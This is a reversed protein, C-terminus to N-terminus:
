EEKNRKFIYIQKNKMQVKRDLKLDPDSLFTQALSQGFLVGELAPICLYDANQDIFASKLSSSSPKHYGDLTFTRDSMRSKLENRRIVLPSLKYNNYIASMFYDGRFFYILLSNQFDSFVVKDSPTFLSAIKGTERNKGYKISNAIQGEFLGLYSSFASLLAMALLPPCIIPNRNIKKVPLILAPLLTVLFITSEGIIQLGLKTRSALGICTSILSLLLFPIRWKWSTTRLWLLGMCLGLIIQPYIIVFHRPNCANLWFILVGILGSIVLFAKGPKLFCFASRKASTNRWALCLLSFVSASLFLSEGGSISFINLFKLIYAYGITYITATKIFNGSTRPNNVCYGSQINYKDSTVVSDTAALPRLRATPNTETLMMFEIQESNLPFLSTTVMMVSYLASPWFVITMRRLYRAISLFREKPRIPAFTERLVPILSWLAFFFAYIIFIYEKTLVLALFLLSIRWIRERRSLELMILLCFLFAPTDMLFHQAIEIFHISFALLFMACVAMRRTGLIKAALFYFAFCSAAAYFVNLITAAYISPGFMIFLLAVPLKPLFGHVGVPENGFWEFAALKSAILNSECLYLIEDGRCDRFCLLLLANVTFYLICFLLAIKDCNSRNTVLKLIGKMTERRSHRM